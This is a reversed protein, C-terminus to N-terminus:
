FLNLFSSREALSDSRARRERARERDSEAALSEPIPGLVRGAGRQYPGTPSFFFFFRRPPVCVSSLLAFFSSRRIWHPPSPPVGLTKKKKRRFSCVSATLRNFHVQTQDLEPNRSGWVEAPDSTAKPKVCMCVGVRM